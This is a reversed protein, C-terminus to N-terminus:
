SGKPQTLQTLPTLAETIFTTQTAFLFLLILAQGYYIAAYGVRTRSIFFLVAFVIGIAVILKLPYFVDGSTDGLQKTDTQVVDASTVAAYNLVPGTATNGSPTQPVPQQMQVPKVSAAAATARQLYQKYAGNGYTSWQRWSSGGSSIRYAASACCAPNFACTDTVEKHFYSNIQWLGRDTSAPTRGNAPNYNVANTVGGSEALAIAVAMVLGNGAFGANRAYSAIAADSITAM